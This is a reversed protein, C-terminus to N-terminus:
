ASLFFTSTGERSDSSLVIGDTSFIRLSSWEDEIYWGTPDIAGEITDRYKKYVIEIEEPRWMDDGEIIFRFSLRNEFNSSRLELGYQPAPPPIVAVGGEPNLSAGDWFMEHFTYTLLNYEGRDLRETNGGELRLRKIFQGDRLIEVLVRSDTGSWFPHFATLIGFGITGIFM